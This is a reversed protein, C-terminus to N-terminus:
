NGEPAPPPPPPTDGGPRGRGMRSMMAQREATDIFGDGNADLRAFRQDSQADYEARTIVGDGDRDMRSMGRGGRRGGEAAASREAADIKGDGNTDMRAFREASQAAFEAKSIKGDKDTDLRDLMRGGMGQGMPSPSDQPMLGPAGGFRHGFKGRGAHMEDATLVGDKNADLKAFRAEAGALFEARTVKGDKDADGKLPKVITAAPATQTAFAAVGTLMTVGLAALLPFPKM